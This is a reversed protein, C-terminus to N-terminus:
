PLRECRRDEDNRTRHEGGAWAEAKCLRAPTNIKEPIVEPNSRSGMHSIGAFFIFGRGESRAPPISIIHPIVAHDWTLSGLLFFLDGAMAERQPDKLNKLPVNL